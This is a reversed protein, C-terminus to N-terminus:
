QFQVPPACVGEEGRAGDGGAIPEDLVRVEQLIPHLHHAVHAGDLHLRRSHVAGGVPPVHRGEGNSPDAVDHPELSIGRPRLIGTLCRRGERERQYPGPWEGEAAMRGWSGLDLLKPGQDSSPRERGDRLHVGILQQTDGFGLEGLLVGAGALPWGIDETVDILLQLLGQGRVIVHQDHAVGLRSLRARGELRSGAKM